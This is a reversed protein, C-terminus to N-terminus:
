PFYPSPATQPYIFDGARFADLLIQNRESSRIYIAAVPDSYVYLWRPHQETIAAHTSPNQHTLLIDAGYKDAIHLLLRPARRSKFHDQIVAEPYTTRFRGDISVQCDPHLKWIAYEGWEFPLQLNGKFRNKQMFRVAAVPYSGTDVIIRGQAQIYKSAGVLTQHGGMLVLAGALVGVAVRSLKVQPILKPLAAVGRSGWYVLFPCVMIAFFPIHRQHKIAAYLLFILGATEWGLARKRLTLLALAFAVVLLKFAPFSGDLLIVPEWESIAREIKLSHYLFLHLKYGYPNFLSALLTTAFAVGLQMVPKMRRGGLLRRIAQWVLVMGLLAIGMLFGGHLNVWAIMLVPLWWLWTRGGDFYQYLIFLYLTFILFSSLQPRIMFGPAIAAIAPIFVGALVVPHSGRYRCIIGIIIVVLLGIGLKLALLGADGFLRYIAFFLLEILWEHNVWATGSTTFAYPDLHELGKMRWIEAGFRIHGWLDPDATMLSFHRLVTGAIFIWGSVSLWTPHQTGNKLFETRTAEM